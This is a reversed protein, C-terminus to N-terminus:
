ASTMSRRDPRTSRAPAVSASRSAHQLLVELQQRADVRDRQVGGRGRPEHHGGIGGPGLEPEQAAHFGDGVEIRLTSGGIRHLHEQSTPQAVVHRLMAQGGRAEDRVVRELEHEVAAADRPQEVELVRVNTVRHHIEGRQADAVRQLAETIQRREGRAVLRDGAHDDSWSTTSYWVTNYL